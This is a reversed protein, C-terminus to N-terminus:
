KTLAEISENNMYLFNLKWIKDKRIFIMDGMRIQEDMIKENPLETKKIFDLETAGQLDQGSWQNLFLFFVQSFQAASLKVIVDEDLPGRYKVPFASFNLIQGTDSKIVAERFSKWFTNFNQSTTDSVTPHNSKVSDRITTVTTDINNLTNNAQQESCSSHCLILFFITVSKNM